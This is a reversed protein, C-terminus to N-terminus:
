LEMDWGKKKQQKRQQQQAQKEKQAQLNAMFQEARRDKADEVAKQAAPRHVEPIKGWEANYATQAAELATASTDLQKRADRYREEHAVQIGINGSRRVLFDVRNSLYFVDNRDINDPTVTPADYGYGQKMMHEKGMYPRLIDLQKQLDEKAAARAARAESQAEQYAAYDQEYQDKKKKSALVGPKAPPLKNLQENAAELQRVGISLADAAKELKKPLNLLGYNVPRIEGYLREFESKKATHSIQAKELRDEASILAVFSSPAPPQVAVTPQKPQAPTSARAIQDVLSPKREPAAPQQIKPQEQPQQKKVPAPSPALFPAHKGRIEDAMRQMTVVSDTYESVTRGFTRLSENADGTAAKFEAAKERLNKQRSKLQSIELDLGFVTEKRVCVYILVIILGILSKHNNRPDAMWEMTKAMKRRRYLSDMEKRIDAMQSNYEGWFETKTNRYKDWLIQMDAKSAKAATEYMQKIQPKSIGAVEGLEYVPQLQKDLEAQRVKEQYVPILDSDPYQKKLEQLVEADSAPPMNAIGEMTMCEVLLRDHGGVAEAWTEMEYWAQLQDEYMYPDNKEWYDMSDWFNKVEPDQEMAPVVFVAWYRHIELVMAPRNNLLQEARDEARQMEERARKAAEEQKKEQTAILAAMLQAGTAQRQAEQRAMQLADLEAQLTGTKANSAFVKEQIQLATALPIEGSRVMGNFKKVLGNYAEADAKRDGLLNKGVHQYPLEGTARDYEKIEIDGRLKGNLLPLIVNSKVHSLWRKSQFKPNAATFYRQEYVEGKKVIRCGPLLQKDADLIEGKKYVRKGEANFFLNREATKIVPEAMLQREPFIVHAHLNNKKANYHVAVLVDLGLKKKYEWAIVKAIKEPKMKDLLSNSLQIVSERGQCCKLKREELEGTKSNKVTRTKQGFQEFAAQSEQALTEWYRGDLLKQAGDYVALLNEQRNPNSVYDCRGVVNPLATARAYLNPM